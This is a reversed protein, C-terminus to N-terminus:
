RSLTELERFPQYAADKCQGRPNDLIQDARGDRFLVMAEKSGAYQGNSKRANYRLCVTYRTGGELTRLEPDSIAADRVNTPDNLYSRMMALIETRHNSPVTTNAMQSRDRASIWDSNCGALALALAAAAGYRVASRVSPHMAARVRMAFKVARDQVPAQGRALREEFRADSGPAALGVACTM